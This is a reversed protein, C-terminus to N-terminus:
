TLLGEKRRAAWTALLGDAVAVANANSGHNKAPDNQGM